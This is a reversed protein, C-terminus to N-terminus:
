EVWSGLADDVNAVARDRTAPYAEIKGRLRIGEGTAVVGNYAAQKDLTVYVEQNESVRDSLEAEIQQLVGGEVLRNLVTRMEDATEIRASLIVIQDGYHGTGDAHEIPHDEPLLTRLATEVRRDAETAYSFTRVDIYHFPVPEGM